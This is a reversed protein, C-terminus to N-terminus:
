QERFLGKLKNTFTDGKSIDNKKERVKNKSQIATLFEDMDLSSETMGSIPLKDQFAYFLGLCATLGANRGGLTEPIYCKTEVGLTKQLLADLGYTEGGEGTIIVTTEDAQLIPLCTKQIANLWANVGPKVCDVFQQENITQTQNNESWIHIPNTSCKDQDLRASYKLLEVALDSRINYQNCIKSAITGIGVPMVAATTLRGRKLLGLTTAEREIKLIIVQHDGKQEFLAAEKGVAYVDLYLDMVKVGANEICTVLDYALHIDICLVDVDSSLVTCREGVPPKRTMIGNAIYRTCVTQVPAYGKPVPITEEAKRILNRVDQVTIRGDISDIDTTVKASVRKMRYSPMALIVSKVDANLMKRVEEKASLFASTIAHANKVKDYSLGDCPVREVKLIQFRTNFFEGVVLRLEHDSVEVTAFIQKDQAM